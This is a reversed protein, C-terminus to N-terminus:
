SISIIYYRALMIVLAMMDGSVDDCHYSTEEEDRVEIEIREGAGHLFESNDDEEGDPAAGENITQFLEEEHDRGGDM